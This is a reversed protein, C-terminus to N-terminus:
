NDILWRYVGDAKYLEDHTGRQVVVGRDLVVIEDCDRITSLRHAVIICTCGRRRLNEDIRKETVPDLASTAEDLVIISPNNALARAIELRQRQGNSFNRGGEDVLGDYGGQRAALDDHICADKAAQVLDEEPLTSDWMSLVERVTGEYLFFEQDVMAVSNTVTDRPLQERRRGDFLVEGTWAPQLGSIVKALTSKGSASPGVLAVRSGPRVVLDFGEILPPSLRSYGFSVGRLEVRGALKAPASANEGAANPALTPDIPHRLVDDLRNLEGEVEQLSGGLGVLQGVPDMFSIMLSQFAVLSGITMDGSIVRAAGVGLIAVNSLMALTTPLVGLGQSLVGMQQNANTVKALQGAWRSFFDDEGGSAKLSEVSQLGSMANGLMKGREQLARANIDKRRRSVYRLAVFNLIAISVGVLTLVWDFVVMLTLTLFVMVLNLLNIALSGSLLEALRSNIQIRSGVEGGYRQSFFDMPLRLVHSLFQHSGIVNLKTSLRLLYYRQLWTAAARVLASLAMAGLLPGIWHYMRGMLISDVFVKSFIPIVLGVLSLALSALFVYFLGDHSGRLRTVLDRWVTRREGGPVFEPGPEFVLVVGTFSQDFEARSVTRPGVAPDNIYVADRGFGEVVVFHNFNWFVVSPLSLEALEAPQKSFGKAKLGYNRAAKLLNSAKTGDRSVGCAGRLEELSVFRRYYGLVMGLAAAGCEVAEMQLVTPTRARSTKKIPAPALEATAM